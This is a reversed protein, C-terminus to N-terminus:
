GPGRGWHGACRGPIEPGCERTHRVGPRLGHLLVCTIACLRMAQESLDGAGTKPAQTFQRTSGQIVSRTQSTRVVADNRKPQTISSGPGEKALRRLRSERCIRAGSRYEM